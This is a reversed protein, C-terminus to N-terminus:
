VRWSLRRSVPCRVLWVAGSRHRPPLDDDARLRSARGGLPAPRLPVAVEGQVVAPHALCLLGVQGDHVVAPRGPGCVGYRPFRLSDVPLHGSSFGFRRSRRTALEGM